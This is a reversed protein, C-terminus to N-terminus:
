NINKIWFERFKVSNNYFFEADYAWGAIEDLNIPNKHPVESNTVWSGLVNYPRLGEGLGDAEGMMWRIMLKGAATNPAKNAMYIYTPGLVSVKPHMDFSANISLGKQEINRLKSSAGIGVPPNNQGKDGVNEVVADSSKVLVPDNKMLRAIFEYGANEETLELDKGYLDKYAEEMEDANRVMALFLEMTDSSDLPDNILVRTKWQPETLQWWNTVPSADYVDTNYFIARISVYPALAPLSKYPELLSDAIDDPKYPHLIERGVLDSSVVGLADKIFIVDANFVGAEQERVLKEVIENTSMDFGEVTIGPYQAEFSAKVDKIRSSQSYVVVKGEQKALEYLEDVTETRNLGVEEAWAAGDPGAAPKANAGCGALMMSFSVLLSLWRATRGDRRM